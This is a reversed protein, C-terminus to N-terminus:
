SFREVLQIMIDDSSPDDGYQLTLVEEGQKYFKIDERRIEGNEIKSINAYVWRYCLESFVICKSGIKWENRLKQYLEGPQSMLKSDTSKHQTDKNNKNGMDKNLCNGM